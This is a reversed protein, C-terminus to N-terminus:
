KDEPINELIEALEVIIPAIRRLEVAVAKAYKAKKAVRPGLRLRQKKM